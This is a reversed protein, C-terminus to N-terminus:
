VVHTPGFAGFRRDRSEDPHFRLVGGLTGCAPSVFHTLFTLSLPVPLLKPLEEGLDDVLAELGQEATASRTSRKADGAAVTEVNVQEDALVAEAPGGGPPGCGSNEAAVDRPWNRGSAM